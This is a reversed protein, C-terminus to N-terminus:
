PSSLRFVVLFGYLACITLKLYQTGYNLNLVEVKCCGSIGCGLAQSRNGVTGCGDVYVIASNLMYVVDTCSATM